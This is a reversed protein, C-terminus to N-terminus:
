LNPKTPSTDLKKKFTNHIQGPSVILGFHLRVLHSITKVKSKSTLDNEGHEPTVQLLVESIFEIVQKKMIEIQKTTEKIIKHFTEKDAEVQQRKAEETDHHHTEKLKAIEEQHAKTVEAIDTQRNQKKTPHTDKQGKQRTQLNHLERQYKSCGKYSAIHTRHCNACEPEDRPRTCEHLSHKGACRLCTKRHTCNGAFHGFRQCNHCQIPAKPQHIREVQHHQYGINVGEKITRNMEEQNNFTIAAKWIPTKTGKKFFRRFESTTYGQRQLETHVENDSVSPHLRTIIAENKKTILRQTGPIRPKPQRGDIAQWPKMLIAQSQKNQAAILLGGTATHRAM